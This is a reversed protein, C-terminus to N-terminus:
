AQRGLVAQIFDRGSNPVPVIRVNLKESLEKLTVNDLFLDEERHLAVGPILLEDGVIQGQLQELLDKGTLLGAVTIKGGFFTNKIKKTGNLDKLVQLM